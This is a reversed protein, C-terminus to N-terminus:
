LRSHSSTRRIESSETAPGDDTRNPFNHYRCSGVPGGPPGRSLAAQSMRGSDARPGRSALRARRRPVKYSGPDMRSVASPDRPIRAGADERAWARLFVRDTRVGGPRRSGEIDGESSVWCDKGPGFPSSCAGASRAPKRQRVSQASAPHDRRRDPGGPTGSM